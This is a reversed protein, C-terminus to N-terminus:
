LIGRAGSNFNSRGGSKLMLSVEESPDKQMEQKFYNGEKALIRKEKKKRGM